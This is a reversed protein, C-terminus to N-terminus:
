PLRTPRSQWVKWSALSRFGLRAYWPVLEPSTQLVALTVGGRYAQGLAHCVLSSAIGRSRAHARTALNYLGVLNDTRFVELAAVPLGDTLALWLAAPEGALARPLAATFFPVLSPEPPSWNDALIGAWAALREASDVPVCEVGAPPPRHKLEGISLYLGPEEGELEWRREAAFRDMAQSAGPGSWVACPLSRTSFQTLAAQLEALELDAGGPSGASIHVVNLTDSPFGSDCCLVTGRRVVRGRPSGAVFHALHGALNREAKPVLYRVAASSTSM